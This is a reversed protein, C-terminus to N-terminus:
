HYGNKCCGVPKISFYPSFRSSRLCVILKFLMSFQLYLITLDSPRLNGVTHSKACFM